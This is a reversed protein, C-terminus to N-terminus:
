RDEQHGPPEDPLLDITTGLGEREAQRRVADLLGVDLVSMGFPNSVVTGTTPRHATAPHLLVEALTGSLPRASAGPVTNPAADPVIGPPVVRGSAMLAGLIRHPNDRVLTVDDVYVAEAAAFVDAGVDDLSVHALFSGPALDDPTLYPQDSTTATVVVESSATVERPHQCSDVRVCPHRREAWAVFASARGPDVDHVRVRALAPNDAALMDVHTRAQMGAGLLGLRTWRRPGLHRVSLVTYAATRIASILGVEALMVPRATLPDFVMGVGGARELGRGPNSLAANIVKIGLVPADHDGGGGTLAGLMALSRCAAAEANVWRLQGEAPLDTRGQAHCRLVRDVVAVPDVTALCARVAARDLVRLQMGAM